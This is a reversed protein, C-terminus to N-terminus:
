QKIGAAEADDIKAPREELRPDPAGDGHRPSVMLVISLAALLGAGSVFTIM